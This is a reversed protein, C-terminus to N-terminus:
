WRGRFFVMVSCKGDQLDKETFLRGDALKSQFAPIPQGARAPGEYTPLRSMSTLFIWEFGALAVVLVLLGIRVVSRRRAVALVLFFAGLTSLIPLHWPTTLWKLAGFQVVVLAIGLLVCALAAWLFGRGAGREVTTQTETAL